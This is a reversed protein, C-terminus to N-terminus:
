SVVGKTGGFAIISAGIALAPPRARLTIHIQIV